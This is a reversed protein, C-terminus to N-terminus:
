GEGVILVRHDAGRVGDALINRRSAWALLVRAVRLTGNRRNRRRVSSKGSPVSGAHRDSVNGSAYGTGTGNGPDGTDRRTGFRGHLVREDERDMLRDIALHRATLLMAILERQRRVLADPHDDFLAPDVNDHLHAVRRRRQSLFHLVLDGTAAM